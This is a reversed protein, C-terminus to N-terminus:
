GQHFVDREGAPLMGSASGLRPRDASLSPAQGYGTLWLTAALLAVACVKWGAVEKTLIM